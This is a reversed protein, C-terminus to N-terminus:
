GDSHHFPIASDYCAASNELHTAMLCLVVSAPDAPRPIKSNGWGVGRRHSTAKDSRTSAFPKEASDALPTWPGDLRDALWAKYYRRGNEEIITLYTSTGKLRCTHSAELFPGQLAIELHDFGAPFDELKTSLRWLKGNLSTFFLYARRDDCIIWYDLGGEKRPDAPGGDLIPKAQTWSDPSAINATTSYAVWMKQSNPVGVQYIMYWKQHLTFWFM